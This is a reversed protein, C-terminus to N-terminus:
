EDRKHLETL